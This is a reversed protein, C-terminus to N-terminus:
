QEKYGHRGSTIIAEVEIYMQNLAPFLHPTFLCDTASPWKLYCMIIERSYLYAQSNKTIASYKLLPIVSLKVFGKNVLMEITEM